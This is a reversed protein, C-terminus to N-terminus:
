NEVRNLCDMNEMSFALETIINYDMTLFEDEPIPLIPKKENIRLKYIQTLDKTTMIARSRLIFYFFGIKDTESSLEMAKLDRISVYPPTFCLVKRGQKIQYLWPELDVVHFTKGDYLINKRNLDGHVFKRDAMEQLDVALTIYTNFQIDVPTKMSNIRKQSYILHDKEFQFHVSPFSNLDTTLSEIQKTRSKLEEQSCLLNAYPYHKEFSNQNIM